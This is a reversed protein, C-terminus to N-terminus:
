INIFYKAVHLLGPDSYDIEGKLGSDEKSAGSKHRLEM